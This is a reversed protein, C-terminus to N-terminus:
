RALYKSFWDLTLMWADQAAAPDYGKQTDDFFERGAKPESKYAWPLGAKKMAADFKSVETTDQRESEGFIMLVAATVRSISAPQPVSGSFPIAAKIDSNQTLLFWLLSGGLGFGIAGIRNKAVLPHAELYLVSANMDQLLQFSAIGLLAAQIKSPDHLKETGGARSLLDPALAVYGAKALRRTIDKFHETLGHRDHLVLAGPYVEVGKPASLYGMLPTIGPYEAMGATLAPDDAPVTIGSANQKNPPAGPPAPPAAPAAWVSGTDRMRLGGLLLVGVGAGAVLLRQLLERRGLSPREALPALMM